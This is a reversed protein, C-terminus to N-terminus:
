IPPLEGIISWGGELFVYPPTLERCCYHVHCHCGANRLHAADGRGIPPNACQEANCGVTSMCRMLRVLRGIRLSSLALTTDDETLPSRVRTVAKCVAVSCAHQSARSQCVQWKSDSKTLTLQRLVHQIKQRNCLGYLHRCLRFEGVELRVSCKEKRPLTGLCNPHRLYRRQAPKM